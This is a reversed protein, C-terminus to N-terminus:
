RHSYRGFDGTWDSWRKGFCSRAALDRSCRPLRCQDTQPLRSDRLIRFNDKHTDWGGIGASYYL